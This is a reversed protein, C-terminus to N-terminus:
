KAKVDFNKSGVRGKLIFWWIIIMNAFCVMAFLSFNVFFILQDKYGFPGSLGFFGGVVFSLVACGILLNKLTPKDIVGTLKLIYNTFLIAFFLIPYVVPLFFHLFFYGARQPADDMPNQSNTYNLSLVAFLVPLFLLGLPAILSSLFSRYIFSKNKFMM